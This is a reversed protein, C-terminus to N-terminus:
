LLVIDCYGIIKCYGGERESIRQMQLATTFADGKSLNIQIILQDVLAMAGFVMMSARAMHMPGYETGERRSM